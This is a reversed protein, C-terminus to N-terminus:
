SHDAGAKALAASLAGLAAAAGPVTQATAIVDSVAPCDQLRGPDQAVLTACRSAFLQLLDASTLGRFLAMPYSTGALADVVGGETAHVVTARQLLPSASNDYVRDMLAVRLADHGVNASMAMLHSILVEPPSDEPLKDLALVMREAAEVRTRLDDQPAAQAAAEAKAIVDDLMGAGRDAQWPDWLLRAVPISLFSIAVPLMLPFPPVAGLVGGIGRGIGFSVAVLLVQMVAQTLLTILAEPRAWEALKRPWQQPRLIFLWLIFIAAFIPVVAWGFGGLGALLPGFYLLATAGKLLRLRTQM